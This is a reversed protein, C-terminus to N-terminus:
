LLMVKSQHFLASQNPTTIGKVMNLWESHMKWRLMAISSLFKNIIDAGSLCKIENDWWNSSFTEDIFCNYIKRELEFDM